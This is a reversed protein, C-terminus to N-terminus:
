DKDKDKDKDKYKKVMDIERVLKIKKKGVTLTYRVKVTKWESGVDTVIFQVAEVENNVDETM